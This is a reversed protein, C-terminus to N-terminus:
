RGSDTGDDDYMSGAIVIRKTLKKCFEIGDVGGGNIYIEFTHEQPMEPTGSLAVDTYLLREGLVSIPSIPLRFKLSQYNEMSIDSSQEGLMNKVTWPLYITAKTPKSITKKPKRNNGWSNCGENDILRTNLTCNVNVDIGYGSKLREPSVTADATLNSEYTFNHYCTKYIINGWKDRGDNVRHSEVEVWNIKGDCEGTQPINPPPPPTINPTPVPTPSPPTLIGDNSIYEINLYKQPFYGSLPITVIRDNGQSQINGDMMQINWNKFSYGDWDPVTININTEEDGVVLDGTKSEEYLIKNATSDWYRIKIETNVYPLFEVNLYKQPIWSALEIDVNQETGSYQIDGDLTQVNWGLYKYGEWDTLNITTSTTEDTGFLEGVYVTGEHFIENKVTDWYRVYVQAQQAPHVIIRASSFYWYIGDPYWRDHGVTQHNGNQSHPETSGKKPKISGKVNLFFSTEGEEWVTFSTSALPNYGYEEVHDGLTGFRQWDWTTIYGGSPDYSLDEFVITDGVYCELTPIPAHLDDGAYSIIDDLLEGNRIRAIKFQAIPKDLIMGNESIFPLDKYDNAAYDLSPTANAVLLTQCIFIVTLIVTMITYLRKKM